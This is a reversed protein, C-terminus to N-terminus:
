SKRRGSRSTRRPTSPSNSASLSLAPASARTPLLPLQLCSKSHQKQASFPSAARKRQTQEQQHTPTSPEQQEKQEKQEKQEQQQQQQMLNSTPDDHDRFPSVRGQEAVNMTTRQIPFHQPPSLLGPLLVHDSSSFCFFSSLSFFLLSLFSFSLFSSAHLAENQSQQQQTTITQKAQNNPSPCPHADKRKPRHNNCAHMSNPAGFRANLFTTFAMTFCVDPSSIRSRVAYAITYGFFSLRQAVTNHCTAGGECNQRKQTESKM